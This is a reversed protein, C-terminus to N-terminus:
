GKPELDGSAVNGGAKKIVAVTEFDIEYAKGPGRDSVFSREFLKAKFTVGAIADFVPEGKVLGAEGALKLIMGKLFRMSDANDRNFVKRIPRGKNSHKDGPGDLITFGVAVPKGKGKTPTNWGLVKFTCEGPEYTAESTILPDVDSLDIPLRGTTHWQEQDSM